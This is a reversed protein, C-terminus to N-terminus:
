GAASAARKARRKRVKALIKASRPQTDARELLYEAKLLNAVARKQSTDCLSIVEDFQDEVNNAGGVGGGGRGSGSGSGSLVSELKLRWVDRDEFVSSVHTLSDGRGKLWLGGDERRVSDLMLEGGGGGGGGGGFTGEEGEGGRQVIKLNVKSIFTVSGGTKELCLFHYKTMNVAAPVSEEGEGDSFPLMNAQKVSGGNKDIKGYYLGYRTRM